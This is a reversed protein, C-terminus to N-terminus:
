LNKFIYQYLEIYEQTGPEYWQRATLASTIGLQKSRYAERQKITLRNIAKDIQIKTKENM